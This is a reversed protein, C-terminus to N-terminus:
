PRPRWPGRIMRAGKPRCKGLVDASRVCAAWCCCWTARGRGACGVSTCRSWAAERGKGEAACAGAYLHGLLHLFDLIGIFGAAMCTFSSCRGSGRRAMRLCCKRKAKDLGRRHFEATVQWGFPENAATTAVVTRVLRQPRGSRRLRRSRRRRQGSPKSAAAEARGVSRGSRSRLEAALRTVRQRDLFKSTPELRDRARPFTALCSLNPWFDAPPEVLSM